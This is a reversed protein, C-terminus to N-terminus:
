GCAGRSLHTMIAVHNFHLLGKILWGLLLLLLGLLRLTWHPYGLSVSAKRNPILMVVLSGKIVVISNFSFISFVKVLKIRHHLCTLRTTLRSLLLTLMHIM